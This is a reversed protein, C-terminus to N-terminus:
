RWQWYPVAGATKRAAHIPAPVVLADAECGGLNEARLLAARAKDYEYVTHMDENVCLQAARELAEAYDHPTTTM